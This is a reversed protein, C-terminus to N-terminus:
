CRPTFSPPFLGSVESYLYIVGTMDQHDLIPYIAEGSPPGFMAIIEPKTTKGKIVASAKTSDFDTADEKFSSMFQKGVLVDNCISYVMARAPTVGQHLPEAGMKSAYVYILQDISASNKLVKGTRKPEGMVSLVDSRKSVGIKLAEPAPRTFNTGACGSFLLSIGVLLLTTKTSQM